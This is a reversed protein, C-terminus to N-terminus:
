NTEDEDENFEVYDVYVSAFELKDGLSWEIRNRAIEEAEVEDTAEVVFKFGTEIVGQVTYNPM